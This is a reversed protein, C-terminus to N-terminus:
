GVRAARTAQRGSVRAQMSRSCRDRSRAPEDVEGSQSSRGPGGRFSSDEARLGCWGRSAASWCCFVRRWFGGADGLGAHEGEEKEEEEVDVEHRHRRGADDRRRRRGEDRRRGDEERRGEEQSDQLKVQVALADFPRENPDKAMLEEILEELWIPTQWAIERVPPPEAELHKFMVEPQTPSEFPTKGTLMEYLVCGLAYLDTKRSVPHKGTIQEPAMYAM